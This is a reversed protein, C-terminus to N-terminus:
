TRGPAALTSLADAYSMGLLPVLDPTYRQIDSVLQASGAAQLAALINDLCQRVLQNNIMSPLEMTRAEVFRRLERLLAPGENRHWAVMVRRNHHILTEVERQHQQVLSLFTAGDPTQLLEETVQALLNPVSPTIVLSESEDLPNSEGAMASPGPSEAAWVTINLLREIEKIPSAYGRGHGDGGIVLGVVMNQDNVVASGSDGKLTFAGHGLGMMPQIVIQDRLFLQESHEDSNHFTGNLATVIGETLLTTVGRKRVRYGRPESNENSADALIEQLSIAATGKVPGIDVIIPDAKVDGDLRAIAADVTGLRDPAGPDAHRLRKAIKHSKCCSYTPHHVNDENVSYLVHYNSLLVKAGTENDIAICGLTGYTLTERRRVTQNFNVKSSFPNSRGADANSTEEIIESSDMAIRIGGQIRSYTRDDTLIRIWVGTVAREGAGGARAVGKLTFTDATTTDVTFPEGKDWSTIENIDSLHIIHVRDGHKLPHGQSTIQIPSGLTVKEIPGTRDVCLKAWEGSEHTAMTFMTGDVGRLQFTNKDKTAVVFEKGRIQTMGSIRVVKIRDGSHLGHSPSTIVVPNTNTAETIAGSPCGCLDDEWTCPQLWFAFDQLPLQRILKVGEPLMFSDENPVQVPFASSEDLPVGFIRVHNDKVLGHGKSMIVVPSDNNGSNPDVTAATIKGTKCRQETGNAAQPLDLGEIVDTQVGYIEHPIREEPSLEQLPRKRNVFVQIAPKSTLKGAIIKPGLAVGYVGSIRFLADEARDKARSYFAEDLQM